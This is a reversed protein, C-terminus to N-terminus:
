HFAKQVSSYDISTNTYVGKNRLMSDSNDNDCSVCDMMSNTKTTQSEHKKERKNEILLTHDKNEM